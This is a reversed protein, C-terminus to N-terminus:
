VIATGKRAPRDFPPKAGGSPWLFLVIKPLLATHVSAELDGRRVAGVVLPQSAPDVVRLDHQGRELGHRPFVVLTMLKTVHEEPQLIESTPDFRDLTLEAAADSM